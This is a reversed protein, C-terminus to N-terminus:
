PLKDKKPAEHQEVKPAKKEGNDKEAFQASLDLSEKQSKLEDKADLLAVRATLQDDIKTYTMVTNINCTNTFHNEGYKAYCQDFAIPSFHNLAMDTIKQAIVLRDKPEMKMDSIMINIGCCFDFAGEALADSIKEPDTQKLTDWMEQSRRVTDKYIMQAYMTKLGTPLPSKKDLWAAIQKTMKDTMKQDAALDMAKSEYTLLEDKQKPIKKAAEQEKLLLEAKREEALRLEEEKAAQQRDKEAKISTELKLRANGLISFRPTEGVPFNRSQYEAIKDDLAKLYAKEQSNRWWNWPMARWFRGRHKRVTQMMRRARVVNNLDKRKDGLDSPDADELNRIADDTFSKMQDLSIKNNLIRNAWVTALPKEYAKISDLAATALKEFNAGEYPKRTPLEGEPLESEYRAQAVKEFDEIFKGIDFDSGDYAKGIELKSKNEAFTSLVKSLAGCYAGLPTDSPTREMTFNNIYRFKKSVALYEELSFELGYTDNFKKQEALYAEKSM